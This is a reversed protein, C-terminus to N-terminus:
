ASYSAVNRLTPEAAGDDVRVAHDREVSPDDVSHNSVVMGRGVPSRPAIWGLWIPGARMGHLISRNQAARPETPTITSDWNVLGPGGGPGSPMRSTPSTTQRLPPASGSRTTRANM